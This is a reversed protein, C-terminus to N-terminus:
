NVDNVCEFLVLSKPEGISAQTHVGNLLVEKKLETQMANWLGVRALGTMETEAYLEVCSHPTARGMAYDGLVLLRGIGYRETVPQLLARLEEITYVRESDRALLRLLETVTDKKASDSGARALCNLSEPVTMGVERCLKEFELYEEENFEVMIMRSM